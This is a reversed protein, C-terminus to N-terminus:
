CTLHLGAVVKKEPTLRNYREVAGPTPLEVLDMGMEALWRRTGEPVKLVGHAGCGMVFVEPAARVVEALDEPALSHGEKRWWEPIVGSPTVMVDRTYTRGDIVIRGFSYSDIHPVEESV